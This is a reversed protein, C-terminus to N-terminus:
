FVEGHQQRLWAATFVAATAIAAASIGDSLKLVTADRPVQTTSHLPM